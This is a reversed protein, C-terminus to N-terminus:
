ARRRAVVRRGITLTVPALAAVALLALLAVLAGPLENTDRGLSPLRGPDVSTGAVSIPKVTEPVPPPPTASGASGGGAGDGGAIGSGGTANGGSGGGITGGGTPDGGGDNSGGGGGSGNLSRLAQNIADWCGSYELVDGELNRLAHRLQAKTYRGTLAGTKSTLCDRAIRDDMANARAASPLALLALLCALLIPLRIPRRM